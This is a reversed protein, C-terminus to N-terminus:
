EVFRMIKAINNINKKKNNQRMAYNIIISLSSKSKHCYAVSPTELILNCVRHM